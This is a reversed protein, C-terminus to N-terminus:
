YHMYLKILLISNAITRNYFILIKKLFSRSITTTSPRCAIIQSREQFVVMNTNLPILKNNSNVIGLYTLLQCNYMQCTRLKYNRHECSQRVQCTIRTINATGKVQTVNVSLGRSRCWHCIITFTHLDSPM